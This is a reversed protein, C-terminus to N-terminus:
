ATRLPSNIRVAAEMCDEANTDVVGSCSFVGCKLPLNARFVGFLIGPTTIVISIVKYIDAKFHRVM